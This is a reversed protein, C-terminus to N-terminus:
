EAPNAEVAIEYASLNDRENLDSIGILEQSGIEFFCGGSLLPITTKTLHNNM